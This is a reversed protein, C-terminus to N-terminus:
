YHSSAMSQESYSEYGNNDVREFFSYNLDDVLMTAITKVSMRSNVKLGNSQAEDILSEKDLKAIRALELTYSHHHNPLKM